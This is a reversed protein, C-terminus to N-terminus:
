VNVCFAGVGYIDIVRTTVPISVERSGLAIEDYRRIRKLHGDTARFLFLCLRFLSSDGVM